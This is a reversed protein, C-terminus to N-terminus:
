QKKITDGLDESGFNERISIPEFLIVGEEYFDSTKLDFALARDAKRKEATYERTRCGGQYDFEVPLIMPQSKVTKGNIVAPNWQGHTTSIVERIKLALYGKLNDPLEISDVHGNKDIKFKVASKFRACQSSSIHMDSALLYKFYNPFTEKGRFKPIDDKEQAYTNGSFILFCFLILLFRM